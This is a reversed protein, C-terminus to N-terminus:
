SRFWSTKEQWKSTFANEGEPSHRTFSSLFRVKSFAMLQSKLKTSSCHVTNDGVLDLYKSISNSNRLLRFKMKYFFNPRSFHNQSVYNRFKRAIKHATSIFNISFNVYFSKKAPVFAPNLTRKIKALFIIQEYSNEYLFRWRVHRIYKTAM